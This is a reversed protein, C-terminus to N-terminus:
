ESRGILAGDIPPEPIYMQQPNSASILKGVNEAAIGFIGIMVIGMMGYFMHDKLDVNFFMNGIAATFVVFVAGLTVLRKASFAGEHDQFFESLNTNM